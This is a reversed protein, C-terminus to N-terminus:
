ISHLNCRKKNRKFFSMGEKWKAAEEEIEAEKLLVGGGLGRKKRGPGPQQVKSKIGQREKRKRGL